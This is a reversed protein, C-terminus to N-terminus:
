GRRSDSDVWRPDACEARLARRLVVREGACLGGGHLRVEAYSKSLSLSALNEDRLAEMETVLKMDVFTDIREMFQLFETLRAPLERYIGGLMYALDGMGQFGILPKHSDLIAEM